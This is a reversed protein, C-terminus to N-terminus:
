EAVETVHKGTRWEHVDSTCAATNGARWDAVTVGNPCDEIQAGTTNESGCKPCEDFAHLMDDETVAGCEFCSIGNTM